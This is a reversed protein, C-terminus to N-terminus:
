VVDALSKEMRKFYLLGGALLLMVVAAGRAILGFGPRPTGLLSWRFGEIVAVLPNISYVAQWREPIVSLPYVVPSAYMWMQVVFPVAHSVDRYKINLVSFWLGVGLATTVAMLVFVPLALVNSGPVVRFWVMLGLLVVFTLALDVLPAMVARLPILLRPFYVKTLLDSDALLSGSTRALAQAFYTWPVLAVYAFLAYPVGESPIRVFMGFVVTFILMTLLPQIIAWAAGIATQKYRVKLDRWVLFYLLERYDRLSRLDLSLTKTREVVVLPPQDSHCAHDSHERLEPAVTQRPTLPSLRTRGFEFSEPSRM